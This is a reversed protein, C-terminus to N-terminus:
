QQIRNSHNRYSYGRSDTAKALKAEANMLQKKLKNNESTLKKVERDTRKKDVELTRLKGEFSTKMDREAALDAKVNEITRDKKSSLM